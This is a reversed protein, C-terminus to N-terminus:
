KGRVIGTGGALIRYIKMRYNWINEQLTVFQM